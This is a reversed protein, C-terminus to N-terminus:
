LVLDSRESTNTGTCALPFSTLCQRDITRFRFPAYVTADAESTRRFQDYVLGAAELVTDTPYTRRRPQKTTRDFTSARLTDHAVDIFAETETYLYQILAM